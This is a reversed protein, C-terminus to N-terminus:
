YLPKVTVACNILGRVEQCHADVTVGRVSPAQKRVCEALAARWAEPVTSTANIQEIVEERPGAVNTLRWLLRNDINQNTVPKPM